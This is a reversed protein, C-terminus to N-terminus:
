VRGVQLQSCEAREPAESRPEPSCPPPFTRTLMQAHTPLTTLLLVPLIGTLLFLQISRVFRQLEPIHSARVQDLWVDLRQGERHRLMQMFDPALEYVTNATPSAQRIAALAQREKEKLDSPDRLFWWVAQKATWQEVPSDPTVHPRQAKGGTTTSGEKIQALFRYVSRWSGKYGQTQLERWLQLGNRGGQSFREKVYAAYPDFGRRRKRRLEPSAYPIGRTLWNRVTREGMGLRQAMEKQTFGEERLHVLQQYRDLREEHRALHASGALPTDQDSWFLRVEAQEMDDETEQARMESASPQSAQSIATRCRALIEEVLDRLNDTLHYRDAVQRAQPAGKRAAAAYDGGRDRSVLDIEPHMEMWSQATATERDALYYIARINSSKQRSVYSILAFCLFRDAHRQLFREVLPRTRVTKPFELSFSLACKSSKKCWNVRSFPSFTRCLSQLQWITQAKGPNSEPM